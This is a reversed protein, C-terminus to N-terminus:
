ALRGLRETHETVAHVYDQVVRPQAATPCGV